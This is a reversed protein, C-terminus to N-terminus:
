NGAPMPLVPTQQDFVIRWQGGIRQIIASFKTPGGIQQGGKLKMDSSVDAILLAVDATLFQVSPKTYKWSPKGELMTKFQEYGAKMTEVGCAVQGDPYIECANPAYYAWMAAEDNSEYAQWVADWMKLVEAEASTPQATSTQASIGALLLAFLLTFKM